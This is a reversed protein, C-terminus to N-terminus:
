LRRCCSPLSWGISSTPARRRAIIGHIVAPLVNASALRRSVWGYGDEIRQERLFEEFRDAIDDARRLTAEAPPRVRDGADPRLGAAARRRRGGRRAAGGLPRRGRLDITLPLGLVHALHRLLAASPWRTSPTPSTTPVGVRLSITPVGLRELERPARRDARHDGPVDARVLALRRALEPDATSGVVPPM